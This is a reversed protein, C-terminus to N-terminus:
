PQERYTGFAHGADFADDIDADARAAGIAFGVFYCALGHAFMVAFLVWAATM